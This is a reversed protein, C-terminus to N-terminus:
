QCLGRSFLFNGVSFCNMKTVVFLRMKVINFTKTLLFLGALSVHHYLIVNNVKIGVYGKPLLPSDLARKDEDVLPSDTMVKTAVTIFDTGTTKSVFPFSRSARLNTEIVQM